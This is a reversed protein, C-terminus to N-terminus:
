EYVSGDPLGEGVYILPSNEHWAQLERPVSVVFGAVGTEDARLSRPGDDDIPVDRLGRVRLSELADSERLVRVAAAMNPAAVKVMVPVEYLGM